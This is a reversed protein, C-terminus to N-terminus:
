DFGIWSAFARLSEEFLDLFAKIAGDTVGGSLDLDWELVPDGDKDLYARSFRKERNWANIRELSPPKKMSFGAYLQLSSCVEKECDMLLLLARLGALRLRFYVEGGEEVREYRYSAAKLLAEAEKPTIGTRVGQALVPLLLPILFLAFRM